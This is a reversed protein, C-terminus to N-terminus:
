ALARAVRGAEDEGLGPVRGALIAVSEARALVDVEVPVAVESWGRARSTILVHGAGGPLVGAVDEPGAVNDFVVLWRDRARLEALVAALAEALGVGPEACGLRAALGALQEGILWAEEANVWWVVDYSGAFRHAYEVALQTKGVGGM